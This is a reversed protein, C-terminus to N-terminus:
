PKRRRRRALEAAIEALQGATPAGVKGVSGVVCWWCVIKTGFAAASAPSLWVLRHCTRCRRTTSGAAPEAPQGGDALCAAVPMCVLVESEASVMM